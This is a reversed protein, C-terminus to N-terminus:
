QQLWPRLAGQGVGTRAASAGAGGVDFLGSQPGKARWAGVVPVGGGRPSPAGGLGDQGLGM